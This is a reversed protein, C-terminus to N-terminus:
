VMEFIKSHAHARERLIVGDIMVSRCWYRPLALTSRAESEVMSDFLVTQFTELKFWSGGREVAPCRGRSCTIPTRIGPPCGLLGCYFRPQMADASPPIASRILSLDLSKKPFGFAAARSVYGYSALALPAVSMVRGVVVAIEGHKM